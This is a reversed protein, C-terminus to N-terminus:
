KSYLLRAWQWESIGRRSIQWAKQSVPTLPQFRQQQLPHCPPPQPPPWPMKALLRMASHLRSETWEWTRIPTSHHLTVICGSDWCWYSGDDNPPDYCSDTELAIAPNQTLPLLPWWKPMCVGEFAAAMLVRQLRQRVKCNVQVKQIFKPGKVQKLFGCNPFWRAHETWPEDDAEWNCLGGDCFFCKVNDSYGSLDM